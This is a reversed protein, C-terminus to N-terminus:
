SHRGSVDFRRAQASWTTGYAGRLELVSALRRALDPLLAVIVYPVILKTGSSETALLILVAALFLLCGCWETDGLGAGGRSFLAFHATRLLPLAFALLGLFGNEVLTRLFESHISKVLIAPLYEFQEMVIRQYGNTGVGVLPSSSFMETGVRTAFVRQANSLSESVYEGSSYIQIKATSLPALMSDVQQAVYPIELLLPLSAVAVFATTILAFMGTPRILMRTKLVYVLCCMLYFLLAKREGSLMLIPLIAPLLFIALRTGSGHAERHKLAFYTLLLPVFLFALKPADLRKWGTYYGHHLHWFVNYLMVIFLIASFLPLLRRLQDATLSNYFYTGFVFVVGVQIGERLFNGPGLMSASAAHIAFFLGCLMLGLPLRTALGHTLVLQVFMVLVFADFPRLKAGWVILEANSFLSAVAALVLL